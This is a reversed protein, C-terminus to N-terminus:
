ETVKLLTKKEFNKKLSMYKCNIQALNRQGKLKLKYKNFFNKGIGQPMHPRLEGVLSQVWTGQVPLALTKVAPGGPM